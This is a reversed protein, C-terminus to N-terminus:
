WYSARDLISLVPMKNSSKVAGRGLTCLQECDSGYSCLIVAGQLVSVSYAARKLTRVRMILPINPPWAM